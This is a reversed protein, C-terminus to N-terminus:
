RRGARDAVRARRVLRSISRKWVDSAFRASITTKTASPSVISRVSRPAPSTQRSPARARRQGRAEDRAREHDAGSSAAPAGAGPSRSNTIHLPSFPATGIRSAANATSAPTSPRAAADVPDDEDDDRERHDHLAREIGTAARGAAADRHPHDLRLRPVDRDPRRSSGAVGASRRDGVPTARRRRLRDAVQREALAGPDHQDDAVALRHPARSAGRERGPSSTTTCSAAPM